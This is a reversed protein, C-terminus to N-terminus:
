KASSEIEVTGKGVENATVIFIEDYAKEDLQQFKDEGIMKNVLFPTTNSHGVILVIEGLHSAILSNIFNIPDRPDYENLEIDFENLTPQATLQTRKYPTSYVADVKSYTKKLWNVIRKAREEGVKSLPPNRTGDDAKEAHRIFILTAKKQTDDANQASATPVACLVLLSLLIIKKM